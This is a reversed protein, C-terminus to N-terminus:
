LAVNSDIFGYGSSFNPQSGMAVASTRLATYVASPTLTPNAQLLLAAAAAAHPTAASTGFFNPFSAVNACEPVASNDQPPQGAVLQFGLFTNNVGDPGVVDPKQRVAPAQAKGTADFLIPDGGKSSYSEVLTPRTGGRAGSVAFGGARQGEAGAAGPHGQITPGNTAFKTITAIQGGFNDFVGVKIRGPAATGDALGVVIVLNQKDPSFGAASAPNGIILVQVPDSHTANPGTCTVQSGDLN